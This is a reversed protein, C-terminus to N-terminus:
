LLQVSEFTKPAVVALIAMFLGMGLSSGIAIYIAFWVDVERAVLMTFVPVLVFALVGPIAAFLVIRKIKESRKM